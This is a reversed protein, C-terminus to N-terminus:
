CYYRKTKHVEELGANQIATIVSQAIPEEIPILSQFETDATLIDLEAGNASSVDDFIVQQQKLYDVHAILQSSIPEAVNGLTEFASM